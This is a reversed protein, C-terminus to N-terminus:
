TVIICKLQSELIMGDYGTHSAFSSEQQASPWHRCAFAPLCHLGEGNQAPTIAIPTHLLTVALLYHWKAKENPTVAVRDVYTDM